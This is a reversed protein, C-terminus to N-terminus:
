ITSSPKSDKTSLPEEASLWYRTGFYALISLPVKWWYSIPSLIVFAGLCLLLYLPLVVDLVRKWRSQSLNSALSDLNSAMLALGICVAGVSPYFYFVYSIRDTILSVPIWVLYTGTFWALAFISVGDNKFSRYITYLVTPMILAWVPPSIMALCHPQEWYTLIVPRLLWEWPRSLMVSPSGTFTASANIDLMTMLQSFPNLWKHWVAYDLAPMILFFTVPALVVLVLIGPLRKRNVILWHLIIILVVLVGTLKSLAALGAMVGSLAYQNRLYLWLSAMMFTLSFVDLMAVGSQVFSLNEFAVLFTALYAYERNINLRRCILYFFVLGTTGFFVSFFRWGFANDGFLWIGAAIFLQGLPPHDVRDTGLGQLIYQASPVYYQEDFVMDPPYLITAFHLALLVLVLFVVSSYEWRVLSVSLRKIKDM